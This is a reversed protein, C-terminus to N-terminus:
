VPTEPIVRSFSSLTLSHLKITEEEGVQNGRGGGGRGV